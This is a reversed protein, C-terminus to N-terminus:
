LEEPNSCNPSLVTDVKCSTLSVILRNGPNPLGLIGAGGAGGGAGGGGISLVSGEIKAAFFFSSALSALLCPRLLVKSVLAPFVAVPPLINLGEASSSLM